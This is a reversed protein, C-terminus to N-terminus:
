EEKVMERAVSILIDIQNESLKCVYQMLSEVQKLPSERSKNDINIGENDTLYILDNYDLNLTKAICKITDLSPKIANGRGDKNRELMAVYSYSLGSKAAFDRLSLHNKTRYEKICTGLTKM